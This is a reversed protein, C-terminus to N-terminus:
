RGNGGTTSAAWGLRWPFYLDASRPQYPGHANATLRRPKAPQGDAPDLLQGRPQNADGQGTGFQLIEGTSCGAALTRTNSGGGPASLNTMGFHFPLSNRSGSPRRGVIRVNVGKRTSGLVRSSSNPPASSAAAWSSAASAPPAVRARGQDDVPEDVEQKDVGEPCPEALLGVGACAAPEARQLVGHHSRGDPRGRRGPGRRSPPLRLPASRM